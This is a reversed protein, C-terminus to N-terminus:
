FLILPVHCVTSRFKHQGEKNCKTYYSYGTMNVKLLDTLINEVLVNKTVSLGELHVEKIKAPLRSTTEEFKERERVKRDKRLKLRRLKKDEREREETRRKAQEQQYSTKGGSLKEKLNDM